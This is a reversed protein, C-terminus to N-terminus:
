QKGKSHLKRPPQGRRLDEARLRNAERRIAQAWNKAKGRVGACDGNFYATIVSRNFGLRDALRNAAGYHAAFVECDGSREAARIAKKNGDPRTPANLFGNM